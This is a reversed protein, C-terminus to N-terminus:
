TTPPLIRLAVYAILLLAIIVLLLALTSSIFIPAAKVEQERLIRIKQITYQITSTIIVLVGIGMMTIGVKEITTSTIPIHTTTQHPLQKRALQFLLEFKEILFGFAIVGIATRVWALFTRENAALDRFQATM